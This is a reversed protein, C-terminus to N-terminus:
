AGSPLTVIVATGADRREIAIAGGHREAISRCV